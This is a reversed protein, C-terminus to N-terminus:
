IASVRPPSAKNYRGGCGDNTHTERVKDAAGRETYWQVLEATRLKNFDSRQGVSLPLAGGAGGEAAPSASRAMGAGGEVGGGVGEAPKAPPKEALRM